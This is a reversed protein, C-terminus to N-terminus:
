LNELFCKWKQMIEVTSFKKTIEKANTGIRLREEENEILFSLKEVFLEINKDPILFGNKESEIIARPGIPCDYAICPLGFAMAELLVMPFGETRSTMIYVSSTAYKEEINKVFNFYNVTSIIGLDRAEKQLSASDDTYIDLTWEPYKQNIEKWILLLQDLGKEYSNRAITLVKKSQLSASIEAEVWSSNPIIIANKVNWEKLSESSLVVIKSFKGAALDKFQYKLKLFVSAERAKEEVYKSGHCEFIIPTKGSIFFPYTFAKLGNDVVLIVDPKIEKIKQNTTKRLSLFFSFANSNLNMNHFVIKENFSYFPQIDAENQSLIHIEYDFREVFYNAKIALIRAVGGANKIKPVIYLLKM